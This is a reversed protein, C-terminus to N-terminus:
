APQGTGARDATAADNTLFRKAKGTLPDRAIAEVCSISVEPETLGAQRLSGEVGAALAGHDFDTDAVV